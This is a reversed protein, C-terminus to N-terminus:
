RVPSSPGGGEDQRDSWFYALLFGGVVGGIIHSMLVSEWASQSLGMAITLGGRGLGYGVGGAIGRWAWYSPIYAAAAGCTLGAAWLVASELILRLRVAGDLAGEVLGAIAGGALGGVLALVVWRRM